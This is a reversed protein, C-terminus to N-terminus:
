SFPHQQMWILRQASEQRARDIERNIAELEAGHSIQGDNFKQMTQTIVDLKGGLTLILENLVRIHEQDDALRQYRQINDEDQATGHGARKNEMSSQYDANIKEPTYGAKRLKIIDAAADAGADAEQQATEGAARRKAIDAAADIQTQTSAVAAADKTKQGAVTQAQNIEGPLDALRADNTLAATRADELIKDAADKNRELAPISTSLQETLTKQNQISAQIAEVAAKAQDINLGSKDITLTDKAAKNMAFVDGMAAKKLTDKYESMIDVLHQAQDLDGLTKLGAKGEGAGADLRAADKLNGQLTKANALASDASEAPKAAAAAAADLQVRAAQRTELEKQLDAATKNADLGEIQAQTRAKVRAIDAEVRSPDLGAENARINAEELKGAAEIKAKNGALIVDDLEKVRKILLTTPDHDGAKDAETLYKALSTEANDWATKLNEVGGNLSQANIKGTEDLKDNYEDLMRKAEVLLGILVGIAGLASPNFAERFLAGTGPLIQNIDGIIRHTERGEGEFLGLKESAKKSEDGMDSTAAGMKKAGDGIDELIKKAATGQDEGVLGLEILVKLSTDAM